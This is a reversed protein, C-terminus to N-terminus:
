SLEFKVKSYSTGLLQEPAKYMLTGCLESTLGEIGPELRKALGFDCIKATKISKRGSLLINAPKLDRHVINKDHLYKLGNLIGDTIKSAELDDFGKNSSALRFLKQNFLLIFEIWDSNLFVM